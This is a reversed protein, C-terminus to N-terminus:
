YNELKDRMMRLAKGRHGLRNKIEPDLEGDTMNYEPVWFIPDYGFGNTGKAEFAVAGEYTAFTDLEREDPFVCAVACCFRATRKEMPVGELKDLIAQNKITYSTDEGMFRASYIGPQKDLYDVEFGSDDSMVICDRYEEPLVAAIARSKILANETYTTGNEDADSSLGIDKMSILEIDMDKMIERAEHVKNKNGTAFIIRKM